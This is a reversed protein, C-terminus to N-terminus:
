HKGADTFASTFAIVEVVLHDHGAHNVELTVLGFHGEDITLHVLRGTSTGADSEGTESDGLIETVLFSLVHQQEDVIDETKCLGARLHPEAETVVFNSMNYNIITILVSSFGTNIRVRFRSGSGAKANLPGERIRIWVVDM